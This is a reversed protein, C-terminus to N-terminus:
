SALAQELRRGETELVQHQVGHQLHVTCLGNNFYLSLVKDLMVVVEVNGIGALRIMVSM